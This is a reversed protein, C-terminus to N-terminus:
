SRRRWRCAASRKPRDARLRYRRPPDRRVCRGLGRRRDGAASRQDVGLVARRWAPRGEKGLGIERDDGVALDARDDLGIDVLGFFPCLKLVGEQEGGGRKGDQGAKGEADRREGKEDASAFLLLGIGVDLKEGVIVRQGPEGIAALEGLPQGPREVTEVLAMAQEGDM